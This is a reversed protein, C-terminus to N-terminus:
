SFKVMYICTCVVNRGTIMGFRNDLKSFSEKMLLFHWFRECELEERSKQYKALLIEFLKIEDKGGKSWVSPEVATETEEKELDSSKAWVKAVM